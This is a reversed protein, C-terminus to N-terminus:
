ASAVAAQTPRFSFPFPETSMYIIGLVIGHRFDREASVRASSARVERRQFFPENSQRPNHADLM